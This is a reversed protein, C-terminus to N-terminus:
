SGAELVGSYVRTFTLTGVFPDTMIKFALASFPEEDSSPRECETEGDMEVGKIAAVDTPAPIYEIVADLLPQVGKNKFATGTLVPVFAGALTGMRICKKLTEVDPETGDLYEMLTDEDQEVALEILEANYEKAKDKLEQPGDWEDLPTETFSAGLEGEDGM